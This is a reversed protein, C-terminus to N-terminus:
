VTDVKLRNRRFVRARVRFDGGALFRTALLPASYKARGLIAMAFIVIRRGERPFLQDKKWQCATHTVAFEKENSLGKERLKYSNM